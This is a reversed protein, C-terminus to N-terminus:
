NGSPSEILAGNSSILTVPCPIQETFPLASYRRRGTVVVVRVDRETAAALAQRNAESIEWRSNLLTGDLDIAMLRIPM